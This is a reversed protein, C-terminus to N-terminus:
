CGQSLTFSGDGDFDTLTVAVTWTGPAGSDSCKTKSDDGVGVTLTENLVEVGDADQVVIQFSGGAAATLDMNLEARSQNNTWEHTATTSGGNGTVDADDGGANVSVTPYTCSGDDKKAEEMYNNAMPDMCGEKKCSTMALMGVTAILMANMMGNMRKMIMM